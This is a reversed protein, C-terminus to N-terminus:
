RSDTGAQASKGEGLERRDTAKASGAIIALRRQRPNTIRAMPDGPSTEQSRRGGFKKETCSRACRRAVGHNFEKKSM